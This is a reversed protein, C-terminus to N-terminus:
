EVLVSSLVEFKFTTAMDGVVAVDLAPFGGGVAMGALDGTADIAACSAPVGNTQAICPAFGCTFEPGIRQVAFNNVDFLRVTNQGTSLTIPVAAPTGAPTDDETCPLGDPGHENPRLQLIALPMVVIMDGPDFAGALTARTASNCIGAHGAIPPNQGACATCGTGGPCDDVSDCRLGDNEGGRCVLSGELCPFSLTGVPTTLTATCNADDAFGSAAGGSNGGSGPTTNHDRELTANLGTSGGNCDIFGVGEGAATICATFGGLPVPAPPLKFRAPDIRVGRTGDVDAVKDVEIRFGPLECTKGDPCEADSTCSVDPPSVRPACVGNPSILIKIPNGQITACSADPIGPFNGRCTTCQQPTTCSTGDFPGGVCTRTGGCVGTTCTGTTCTGGGPCANNNACTGGDNTGGVCMGCRAAGDCPAGVRPGTACVGCDSATGCAANLKPGSTCTGRCNGDSGGPPALTVDMTIVDSGVETPTATPEPTPTDTPPIETPTDTATPTPPVPTNTPTNPVATNTPTNPAATPTPTAVVVVTRCSESAPNSFCNAAGVVEGITVTGNANQDCEVCQLVPTIGLFINACTVVEGISVAGNNNCDGQLQAAAVSPLLALGLIGAVLSGRLRNATMTISQMSDGMTTHSRRPTM